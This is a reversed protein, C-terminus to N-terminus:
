PVNSTGDFRETKVTVGRHNVFVIVGIVFPCEHNLVLQQHSARQFIATETGRASMGEINVAIVGIAIHIVDIPAPATRGVAIADQISKPTATCIVAM